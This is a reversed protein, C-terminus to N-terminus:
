ANPLQVDLDKPMSLGYAKCVERIVAMKTRNAINLGVMWGNGIDAARALDPRGPSIDAASRAIHQRKPTQLAAALAPIKAPDRKTIARLIQALAISANDASYNQGFLTWSVSRSAAPPSSKGASTSEAAASVDDLQEKAINSILNAQPSRDSSNGYPRLQSLFRIVDAPYPTYGSLAEAKDTLTEILVDNEEGILANWANPIMQLAERRGAINQYDQRAHEFASQDRVGSRSLYRELIAQSEAPDRNDLQLRYVRRDDYSGQGGPLYFSWERGDTLVCLPVGEHFSYEFLQRDGDQARGPQKVEVFIAPKQGLGILAFDVRGRENAFEPVVQLPDATDWGLQGLVPIVIGHSISAENVYANSALRRGINKLLEIMIGTQGQTARHGRPAVALLRINSVRQLLSRM